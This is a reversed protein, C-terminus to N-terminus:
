KGRRAGPSSNSVFQKRIRDRRGREQTSNVRTTERLRDPLRVERESRGTPSNPQTFERPLHLQKTATRTMEDGVRLPEFCELEGGAWMRRPLPVPPLFGGRAPHGDPGIASQRPAAGCLTWHWPPPLPDGAAPAPDDRDLTAALAAVKSAAVVDDLEERRGIWTRLHGLTQKDM